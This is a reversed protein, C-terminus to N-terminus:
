EFTKFGSEKKWEALRKRFQDAIEPEADAVNNMEFPDSTLDYLEDRDGINENFKLKGIRMSLATRRDFHGHTVSVFYERKVKETLPRSYTSGTLEAGSASLITATIDVNSVYDRSVKREIGPGAIALPIRLVEETLYCGKDTHGGHSGLADGHDASWIVVTNEGLPSAAVFDAIRGAAEDVLTNQAYAYRLMRKWDRMSLPSPDVLNGDKGVGDTFEKRYSEPKGDLDDYFSPIPEIANEDYKGLFERTPLYPHHPGWFDVRLTFPAGANELKKLRNIAMDALFFAEHCEKSGELTGFSVDFLHETEALNSRKPGGAFSYETEAIPPYPLGLRECYERYEPHRYPNDYSPPSFGKVGLDAPCGSGAHWKGFYYNDYGRKKLAEYYTSDGLPVSRFNDYQGHVHPYTGTLISRRAPCCLPAICVANEFRTGRGCFEDYHPRLVADNYHLVHDQMIIVVNKRSDPM